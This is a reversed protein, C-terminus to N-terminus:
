TIIYVGVAVSNFASVQAGHLLHENFCQESTELMVITVNFIDLAECFM